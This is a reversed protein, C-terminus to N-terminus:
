FFVIPKTISTPLLAAAVSFAWAFVYRFGLAGRSVGSAAYGVGALAAVTALLDLATTATTPESHSGTDWAVFWGVARLALALVGLAFARNAYPCPAASPSSPATTPM